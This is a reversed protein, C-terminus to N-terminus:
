RHLADLAVQRNVTLGGLVVQRLVISASNSLLCCLGPSSVFHNVVSLSLLVSNTVSTM